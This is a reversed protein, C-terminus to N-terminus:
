FNPSWIILLSLTNVFARPNPSIKRATAHTFPIFLENLMILRHKVFPVNIIPKACTSPGLLRQLFNCSICCCEYCCVSQAKNCDLFSLIKPYKPSAPFRGLRCLGTCSAMQYVVIGCLFNRGGKGYWSLALKHTPM